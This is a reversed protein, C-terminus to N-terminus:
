PSTVPRDRSGAARHRTPPRRSRSRRREVPETKAPVEVYVIKQKAKAVEGIEKRIEKQQQKSAQALRDVKEIYRGISIIGWTLSALFGLLTTMGVSVSIWYKLGKKGEANRLMSQTIAPYEDGTQRRIALVDAKIDDLKDTVKDMSKNVVVHRQTCEQRKIAGQNLATLEKQVDSVASELNALGKRTEGMHILIENLTDDSPM